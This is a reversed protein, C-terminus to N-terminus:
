TKAQVLTVEEGGEWSNSFFDTTYVHHLSLSVLSPYGRSITSVSAFQSEYLVYSPPGEQAAVTNKDQRPQKAWYFISKGGAFKKVENIGM